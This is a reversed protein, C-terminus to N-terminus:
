ESAPLPILPHLVASVEKNPEYLYTQIYFRPSEVKLYIKEPAESVRYQPEFIVFEDAEHYLLQECLELEDFKCQEVAQAFTENDPGAFWRVITTFGGIRAVTTPMPVDNLVICRHGSPLMIIGALGWIALVYEVEKSPYGQWQEAAEVPVMVLPGDPGEVWDEDRRM